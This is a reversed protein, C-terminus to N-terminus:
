RVTEALDPLAWVQGVTRRVPGTGRPVWVGVRVVCGARWVAARPTHRAPLEQGRQADAQGRLVGYIVGSPTGEGGFHVESRSSHSLPLRGVRGTREGGADVARKHAKSRNPFTPRWLFTALDDRELDGGAAREGM